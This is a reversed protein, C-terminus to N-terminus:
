EKAKAFEGSGSAHGCHDVDLHQQEVTRDLTDNTAIAGSGVATALILVGVFGVIGALRSWATPGRSRVLNSM